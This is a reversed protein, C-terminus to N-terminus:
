NKYVSYDSEWAGISGTSPMMVQTQVTHNGQAVVANQKLNGIQYNTSQAVGQVPCGGPQGGNGDITTCIAWQGANDAIVQVMAAITITCGAANACKITATDIVNLGAALPAVVGNWRIATGALKHLPAVARNQHSQSASGPLLNVPAAAAPLVMTGSLGLSALLVMIRNVM